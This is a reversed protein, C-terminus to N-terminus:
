KINKRRFSAMGGLTAAATIFASSLLMFVPRGVELLWLQLGQGAPLVDLMCAYVSRLFGGVYLPNPMAESTRMGDMTMEIGCYTEPQSLANYLMSSFLLLALFLLVSIMETVAKNESLMGIWTFLASFVAVELVAILLYLFLRLIGMGMNWTGSALATILAGATWAAMLLLGASFTLLLAALYIETRTHGAVIKNRITGDSYETGLFLSDFLACFLGVPIAFHFYYASLSHEEGPLLQEKRCGSWIYFVAYAFMAGMCIWFMRDKRLRSFHASVLKRM